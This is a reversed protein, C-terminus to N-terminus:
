KKEDKKDNAKDAAFALPTPTVVAFVAAILASLFRTMTNETLM